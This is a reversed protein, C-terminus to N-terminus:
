VNDIDKARTLEDAKIRPNYYRHRTQTKSGYEIVKAPCWSICAVCHECHHMWEPRGNELRINHVPCIRECLGCSTCGDSVTFKADLKEINKYLSKFSLPLKIVSKTSTSVEAAIERLREDNKNLIEDAKDPETPNYLLVYNDPMKIGKGYDLRLGKAKLTKELAAITGHGVGGMTIVAFIYTGQKIDLKEIFTHVARPMNWYYSPFVFGIKAGDGGTAVPPPEGIMHVLPMNNLEASLQKAAYLSNGTGSFWFICSKTDM